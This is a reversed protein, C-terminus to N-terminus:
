NWLSNVWDGPSNGQRLGTAADRRQGDVVRHQARRGSLAGRRAMDAFPDSPTASTRSSCSRCRWGPSTVAGTSSRGACSTTTESRSAGVAELLAQLDEVEREVAYPQTDTSEGRGRRDYTLVTFSTALEAALAAMPGFGRYGCAADALVLAPGTGVQEYAIQTGDASRASRVTATTTM